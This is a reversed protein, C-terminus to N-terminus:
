ITNNLKSKIDLNDNISEILYELDYNKYNENTIIM